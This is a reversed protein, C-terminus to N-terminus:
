VTGGFLVDLVFIDSRRFEPFLQRSSILSLVDDLHSSIAAVMKLLIIDAEGHAMGVSDQSCLLDSVYCFVLFDFKDLDSIGPSGFIIVTRPGVFGGPPCIIQSLLSPRHDLVVTFEEHWDFIILLPARHRIDVQIGRVHAPGGEEDKVVVISIGSLAFVAFAAGIMLETDGGFLSLCDVQLYRSPVPATHWLFAFFLSFLSISTLISLM